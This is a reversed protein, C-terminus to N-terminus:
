SFKVTRYFALAPLVLDMRSRKFIKLFGLHRLHNGLFFSLRFLTGGGVHVFCLSGALHDQAAGEGGYLVFQVAVLVAFKSIALAVVLRLVDSGAYLYLGSVYTFLVFKPVLM